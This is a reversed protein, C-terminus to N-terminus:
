PFGLWHHMRLAWEARIFSSCICYTSQAQALLPRHKVDHLHWLATLIWLVMKQWCFCVEPFERSNGLIHKGKPGRKWDFFKCPPKLFCRCHFTTVNFYFYKLHITSKSKGLFSCTQLCLLDVYFANNAMEWWELKFCDFFFLRWMWVFMSLPDLPFVIAIMVYGMNLFTLM